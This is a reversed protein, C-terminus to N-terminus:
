EHITGGDVRIIENNIYSAEDSALFYIVNAIELPTAFRKNFIKNEEEKKYHEDINDNIFETSVWGPCVCNVRINPAYALSLNHTLSILGAKSADYDLSEVYYTDIGNTSSVNIISGNGRELMKEGAYKSTIFPGILNTNLIKRFNDVTKDEFPVDMSIAANNVLVTIPGFNAEINSIMEIVEEEKSIDAKVVFTKVNYKEEIEKSLKEAEDKSNLYNIVVNFGNLAFKKACARGIGKTAGTILVIKGM